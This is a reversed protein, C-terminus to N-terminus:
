LPPERAQLARWNRKLSKPSVGVMGLAVCTM